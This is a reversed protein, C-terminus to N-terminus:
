GRCRGQTRQWKDPTHLCAHLIIKTPRFNRFVSITLSIKSLLSQNSRKKWCWTLNNMMWIYILYLLGNELKYKIKDVGYEDFSNKTKIEIIHQPAIVKYYGEVIINGMMMELLTDKGFHFQTASYLMKISNSIKEQVSRDNNRATFEGTLSISDKKCNFYVGEIEISIMKWIGAISSDIQAHATFSSYILFAAIIITKMETSTLDFM